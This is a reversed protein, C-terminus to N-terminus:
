GLVDLAAPFKRDYVEVRWRLLSLEYPPLSGARTDGESISAFYERSPGTDGFGLLFTSSRHYRAAEYDPSLRLARDFNAIAEQYRGVFRLLLGWLHFVEFNLPDVSATSECLKLAEDVMGRRFLILQKLRVVEWDGALTREAVSLAEFARGLDAGQFYYQALALHGEGLAPDIELARHAAQLASMMTEELLDREYFEWRHKTLARSLNAWALAFQPDLVVAQKYMSIAHDRDEPEHRQYYENGRLFFHYAELNTTPLSGIPAARGIKSQLAEAVRGAIESQIEFINAVTLERDFTGAWIHEDNRADILQANVRVRDGVRQVGGELIGGVSLEEAIQRVNRTGADAHKMVSTRSIVKLSSIQSIQTLLDHHM